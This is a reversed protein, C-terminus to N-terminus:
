MRRTSQMPQPCAYKILDSGCRQTYCSDMNLDNKGYVCQMGNVSQCQEKTICPGRGDQLFMGQPCRVMAGYRYDPVLQGEAMPFTTQINPLYMLPLSKKITGDLHYADYPTGQVPVPHRCNSYNGYACDGLAKVSHGMFITNLKTAQHLPEAIQGLMDYMPQNYTMTLGQQTSCPKRNYNSM